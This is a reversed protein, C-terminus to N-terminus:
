RITSQRVLNAVQRVDRIGPNLGPVNTHSKRHIFHCKLLSDGLLEAEGTPIMGGM